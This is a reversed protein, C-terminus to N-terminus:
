RPTPPAALEAVFADIVDIVAAVRPVHRLARHVVLYLSAVPEFPLPLDLPVLGLTRAELESSLAAGLGARVTARQVLYDNSRLATRAGLSRLLQDLAIHAFEDSYHVVAVDALGFGAPLGDRYSTSAYLGGRARLLRRVLLDGRETPVMRLAIDAERRDLDRPEIDALVCLHLNPHTRALRVALEPMWDVCLGPPGAVRVEGRAEQELGEVARTAGHAATVLAELHPRLRAAAATPVLGTRHRDFLVHGLTEEVWAVRRSVTAQGVGLAGAAATFSGHTFAAHVVQWDSWPIGAMLPHIHGM